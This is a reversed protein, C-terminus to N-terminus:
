VNDKPCTSADDTWRVETGYDPHNSVHVAEFAEFSDWVVTSRNPTLWRVAVKGDSFVVGELTPEEASVSATDTHHNAVVAEVNKRYLVFIRV